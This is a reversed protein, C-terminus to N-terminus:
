PPGERGAPTWPGAGAILRTQDRRVSTVEYGLRVAVQGVITAHSTNDTEATATGHHLDHV